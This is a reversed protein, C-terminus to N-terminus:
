TLRHFEANGAPRHFAMATSSTIAVKDFERHCIEVQLGEFDLIVPGDEFWTTRGEGWLVWTKTLRRGVLSALRAGHAEEMAARSRLWTPDYGPISYHGMSM